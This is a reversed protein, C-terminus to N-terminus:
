LKRAIAVAATWVTFFPRHWSDGTPRKTCEASWAVRTPRRHSVLRNLLGRPPPFRSQSPPPHGWPFHTDPTVRRGPKALASQHGPLRFVVYGEKRPVDCKLALEVRMPVWFFASFSFRFCIYLSTLSPKTQHVLWHATRLIQPPYCEPPVLM